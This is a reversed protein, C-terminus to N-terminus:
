LAAWSGQAEIAAWSGYAEIQTWSAASSHFFVVGAPRQPEAAALIEDSTAATEDGRTKLLVAWRDGGYNTLFEVEQTGTLYPALAARVALKSGVYRLSPIGAIWERQGAPDILEAPLAAGLVLAKWANWEDPGLASDILGSTNGVVYGAEGPYRKDILDATDEVDQAEIGVGDLFDALVGDVDYARFVTPLRALWELTFAAPM